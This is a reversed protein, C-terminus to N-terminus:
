RSPAAPAATLTAAPCGPAADTWGRLRACLQAAAAASTVPSTRVAGSAHGSLLWAGDPAFALATAAGDAGLPVSWSAGTALDWVRLGDTTSAAAHAGDLALALAIVPAGAPTLSRGEGRADVARVAGDASAELRAGDPARVTLGAPPTAATADGTALDLRRTAGDAGTVALLGDADLALAAIPAPGLPYRRALSGDARWREVTGDVRGTALDGDPLAIATALEADGRTSRRVAGDALAVGRVVGDLSATVLQDGTAALGVVEGDHGPLAGVERGLRADWLWAEASSTATAVRTGDPAGALAGGGFPRHGRLRIIAERSAVDWAIVDRGGEHGFLRVAGPLARLEPARAVDLTAAGTALDLVSIAGHGVSLTRGDPWPIPLFIRRDVTLLARPAPPAGRALAAALADAPWALARGDDGSSYIVARDPAATVAAEGGHAPWGRPAAAGDWVVLGGDACGVVVLRAAAALTYARCPLTAAARRTAGRADWREVQAGSAVILQGDALFAPLAEGDGGAVTVVQEVARAAEIVGLQGGLGIVVLRAGDPSWALRVPRHLQSTVAARPRGAADRLTVRGDPELTALTADVPAFAVDRTADPLAHAVPGAALTDILAQWGTGTATAGGVRAAAALTLAELRDTPRIALGRAHALQAAALATRATRESAEARARAARARDREDVVRAVATAGVAAVVVLAAVAVRTAARHRRLWHRVREGARYRHSLILQGTTFRRLEEALALATPFRDAPRRAMAREVIAVLAPPTDPALTTLPPPAGAALRARAAAGLDAGYPPTGTLAHYLTAGLAYVDFRPDPPAGTAQEPPMYAATGVGARTLGDDDLTALPLDGPEDLPAALGWDIVVTEGFRGLLINAPKLDRHVVGRDHAYAVAEAAAAVRPLLALRQAASTTRAIAEDLPDGEVLPMAYFPEGDPWRGLELVAVIGPHQLRATIRAEREFRARLAAVPVEPVEGIQKIVVARGIRRDWARFARGMGSHAARLPERQSYLAPDVEVLEVLARTGFPDGVGALGRCAACAALHAALAPSTAAGRAHDLLSAISPHEM